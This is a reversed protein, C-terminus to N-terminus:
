ANFARLVTRLDAENGTTTVTVATDALVAWGHLPVRHGVTVEFPGEDALGVTGAAHSVEPSVWPQDAWAPDGEVAPVPDAEATRNTVTIVNPGNSYSFVLLERTSHNAREIGTRDGQELYRIDVLEYGDPLTAPLRVSYSVLGEAGATDAVPRLGWDETETAGVLVSDVFTMIPQGAGVTVGSTTWKNTTGDAHTETVSTFLGSTPDLTVNTVPLPFGESTMGTVARVLGDEGLQGPQQVLALLETRLVADRVAHNAYHHRGPTAGDIVVHVWTLENSGDTLLRPYFLHKTATAADYAVASPNDNTRGDLVYSGDPNLVWSFVGEPSQTVGSIARDIDPLVPAVASAAAADDVVVSPVPSHRAVAVVAAGAVTMVLASLMAAAAARSLRQRGQDAGNPQVNRDTNLM